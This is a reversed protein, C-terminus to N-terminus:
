RRRNPESHRAEADTRRRESDSPIIGDRHLGLSLIAPSAEENFRLGNAELNMERDMRWWALAAALALVALLLLYRGTDFLVRREYDAAWFTLNLGLM